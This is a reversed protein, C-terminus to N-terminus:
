YNTSNNVENVILFGRILSTLYSALIVSIHMISGHDFKALRVASDLYKIGIDHQKWLM